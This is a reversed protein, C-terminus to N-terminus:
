AAKLLFIHCKEHSMNKKMTIGENGMNEKDLESMNELALNVRTLAWEEMSAFKVEESRIGIQRAKMQQLWDVAFKDAFNGLAPTQKPDGIQVM